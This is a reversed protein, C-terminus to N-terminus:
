KIQAIKRQFQSGFSAWIQADRMCFDVYDFITFHIKNQIKHWKLMMDSTKKM